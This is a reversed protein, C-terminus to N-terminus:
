VSERLPLYEGSVYHSHEFAQECFKNLNTYIQKIDNYIIKKITASHHYWPHSSYTETSFFDFSDEMSLSIQQKNGM